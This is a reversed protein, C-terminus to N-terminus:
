QGFFYGFAEIDHQYRRAVKEALAPTFYASYHRHKSRNVHPLPALGGPIKGAILAYDEPLREFRGIFDVMQKGSLDTLYDVQNRYIWKRGDADVIEEDCNELFEEFTAARELVFRHFKNLPKGASLATRNADIMSWWSVLRDWPNRVFAFKFYSQWVNAGYLALLDRAFFHKEPSATPAGAAASISDGATKQIHVFIMRKPHVIM